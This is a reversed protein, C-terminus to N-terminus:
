KRVEMAPVVRAEGNPLPQFGSVNLRTVVGPTQPSAAPVASPRFWFFLAFIALAAAVLAPAPLSVRMTWFQRWVRPSFRPPHVASRYASMVRQDLEATPEPSTSQRLLADLSDPETM